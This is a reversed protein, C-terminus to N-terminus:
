IVGEEALAVLDSSGLGLASYVEPNHEGAAPPLRRLQWPSASLRYPPGPFTLELGLRPHRRQVWYERHALQEDALVDPATNVPAIAIGRHQGERYAEARDLRGMLDAMLRAVLAKGEASRRWEVSEWRERTLVDVGAVGHETMWAALAAWCRSLGGLWLSVHGDRCPYLGTGAEKQQAGFRRRVTGELDYFQIANETAMTMCEQMSVDVHRAEGTAETLRLAMLTGVAAQLASGFCAQYLPAAIPPSDPYGGLYMFGGMAHAVIDAGAHDSYPGSQGFPTVSTVVLGPRRAALDSFGLGLGELYGPRFSELVVAAGAVLRGFLERGQPALLNLTISRKSSNMALFPAGPVGPDSSVLPAIRRAAAGGPPEVLIVDAGMDGLLKGCYMGELGTMDLVTLGSLAQENM